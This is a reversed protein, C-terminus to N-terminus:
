TRGVVTKGELPKRKQNKQSEKWFPLRLQLSSASPPLPLSTDRSKAFTPIIIQPRKLMSGQKEPWYCLGSCIDTTAVNKRTTTFFCGGKWEKNGKKQDSSWKSQLINQKNLSLTKLSKWSYNILVRKTPMIKLCYKFSGLQYTDGKLIISLVPNLSSHFLNLLFHEINKGM